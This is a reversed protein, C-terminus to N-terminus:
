VGFDVELDDFRVAMLPRRGALHALPGSPAAAMRARGITARGRLRTRSRRLGEPAEHVMSWGAHLRGPLRLWPTFGAEAIPGDDADCAFSSGDLVPFTALEKPIGWLARGGVASVLDDVWIDTVTQRPRWGDLVHVAALLEGYAVMSGPAYRVWATGVLVRGAVSVVRTGVPVRDAVAAAPLLWVLLTMHGALHWPAPPHAVDPLPTPAGSRV